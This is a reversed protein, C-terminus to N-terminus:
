FSYKFEVFVRDNDYFNGLFQAQQVSVDFQQGQVLASSSGFDSQSGELLDAGFAFQFNNTIQFTAKPKIYTEELDILYLFLMQAVMSYQPFEKRVFASVSTDVEEQILTEEYDLIIWQSIGAAVDWSMMVFDVAAGWRIHNKQAVGNTDVYGDNNQDATNSLGFFKDEVYALEAKLITAGVQRVATAGYMSIRTYTPFFVPDSTGDVRITRFLVPFDDWTYFYSLSLETDFANFSWRAGYESNYVNWDEPYRTGPSEEQLQWESGRPAPKHFRLDPIFVFQVDGVPSYYDLKASWLPIRYDLLDLLILERFDMPNMEDVIRVGELVGWLIYQKGLRIDWNDAYYDLYLERIDAVPSDKEQPLNVIFQLPEGENRELRAAITEYNFIDYALDYYAWGAFHMSAQEGLDSQADLYIINRIKTISRPERFRYATENKLYGSYNIASLWGYDDALTSDLGLEYFDDSESSTNEPWEQAWLHPTILLLVVGVFVYIASM